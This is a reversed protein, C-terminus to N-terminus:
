FPYGIAFNLILNDGRWSPDGFSITKYSWQQGDELWPKRLPFAFDFRVVFFTADLRLGFGTGVAADKLLRNFKFPAVDIEPNKNILWINGADVFFAGKLIKYIGFRYETNAEFKIEGGQDFFFNEQNTTQHYNGPGLSNLRFARISNPGGSFFQKSYPLTASNGYPLGIGSYIRFVIKDNPSTSYYNRFDLSLRAYQSYVSGLFESPKADNSKVNKTVRNIISLSNGAVESKLMFLIQNKKNPIVQENYTFAYNAGTIFQEEFSKKLLINQQLLSDFEVSKNGIVSYNVFFPNLEHDIKINEKWKYGYSFNLSNLNYFGVRKLYDYGIAIKTQPIYYGKPDRVNFPLIFKPIYLEIDPGVDYSYNGKYSSNIQTEFRGKLNINLLEAGGFTNRNKYNLNLAPGLYDNSKSTGQLEIRVSKQPTPTLDINANLKGIGISDIEPFEIIIFKFTGLSMLKNLTMNHNQRSYIDDQKLFLSRMIVKPRVPNEGKFVVDKYHITDKIATLSDRKLSYTQDVTVLGIKYIRTANEPINDTLKLNLNVTMQVENTDAIFKLYDPRFYYFGKEKLLKDIREREKKILDLSYPEGKVLLSRKKNALLEKDITDNIKSYSITDFTFPNHVNSIYNIKASKNKEKLLFSTSSKFIGENFLAADIYKSTQSPAVASMYVPPEGIKTQIWKRFKSKSTDGSVYYFWLKPRSLFIRKNTKPRIVKAAVKKYLNKNHIKDKSNVTISYGTYLKESTPVYNLGSCGYLYICCLLCYLKIFNNRFMIM